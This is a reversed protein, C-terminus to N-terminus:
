GSYSGGMNVQVKATYTASQGSYGAQKCDSTSATPCVKGSGCAVGFPVITDSVIKKIFTMKVEVVRQKINIMM